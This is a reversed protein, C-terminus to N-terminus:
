TGTRRAVVDTHRDVERIGNFHSDTNRETRADTDAHGAADTGSHLHTGITGAGV